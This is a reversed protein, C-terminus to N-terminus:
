QVLVKGKIKNLKELSETNIGLDLTNSQVLVAGKGNGFVESGKVESGGGADQLAIGYEGNDHVGCGEMRVASGARVLVGDLKNGYLQCRELLALTAAPATLGEDGGGGSGGGITAAADLEMQDIAGFVALGHRTCGHLRCDVLRPSRAGEIGVGTGSRSSVDCDQLQPSGGQFIPPQLM